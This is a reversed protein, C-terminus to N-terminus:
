STAALEAGSPTTMEFRITEIAMSIVESNYPKNVKYYFMTRIREPDCDYALEIAKRINREVSRVTCGYYRAVAPYLDNTLSHLLLPEQIALVIARILLHYGSLSSRIGIRQVFRTAAAEVPDPEEWLASMQAAQFSPSNMKMATSTLNVLM